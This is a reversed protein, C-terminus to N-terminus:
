EGGPRSREVDLRGRFHRRPPPADADLRAVPGGYFVLEVDVVLAAHERPPPSPQPDEQDDGCAAITTVLAVGVVLPVARV